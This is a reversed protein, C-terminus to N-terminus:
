YIISWKRKFKSSRRARINKPVAGRNEGIVVQEGVHAGALHAHTTHHRGLAGYDYQLDCVM